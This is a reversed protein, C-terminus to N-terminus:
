KRGRKIRGNLNWEHGCYSCSCVVEGNRGTTIILEHAQCKPCMAREARKAACDQAIKVPNANDEVIHHTMQGRIEENDPM